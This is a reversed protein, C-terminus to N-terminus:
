ILIHILITQAFINSESTLKLGTYFQARGKMFKIKKVQLQNLVKKKQKILIQKNSILLANYGRVDFAVQKFSISEKTFVVHRRQKKAVRSSTM